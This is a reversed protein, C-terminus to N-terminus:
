NPLAARPPTVMETAASTDHHVLVNIGMGGIILLVILATIIWMARWEKRDKEPDIPNTM